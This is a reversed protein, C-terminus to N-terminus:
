DYNGSERTMQKCALLLIEKNTINYEKLADIKSAFFMVYADCINKIERCCNSSFKNYALLAEGSLNIKGIPNFTRIKAKAATAEIKYKFSERSISSMQKNSAYYDKYAVAIREGNINKEFMRVKDETRNIEGNRFYRFLADHYNDLTIGESLGALHGRIMNLKPSNINGLDAYEDSSLTAVLDNGKMFADTFISYVEDIDRKYNVAPMTNPAINTYTYYPKTYRIDGRYNALKNKFAALQADKNVFNLLFASFSWALKGLASVFIDFIRALLTSFDFSAIKDGIGETIVSDFLTTLTENEHALIEIAEEFTSKEVMVEEGIFTSPMRSSKSDLVTDISFVM